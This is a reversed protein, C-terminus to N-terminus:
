REPDAPPSISSALMTSPSQSTLSAVRILLIIIIAKTWGRTATLNRSRLAFASNPTPLPPFAWASAAELQQTTAFGTAGEWVRFIGKKGVLIGHQYSKLAEHWGTEEIDNPKSGCKLSEERGTLGVTLYPLPLAPDLIPPHHPASPFFFFFSHTVSLVAEAQLFETNGVQRTSVWHHGRCLVWSTREPYAMLQCRMKQCGEEKYYPGNRPFNHTHESLPFPSPTSLPYIRSRNWSFSVTM